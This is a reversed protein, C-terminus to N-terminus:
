YKLSSGGIFEKLISTPPIEDPCNLPLFRSTFNLLRKAESYFPSDPQISKLQPEVFTKLVSMEYVLSSNFLVDADDLFVYINEREGRRVKPWMEMTKEIPYNRFFNDRVIRRIKRFDSNSVVNNNDYNLHTVPSVYIKFKKEHPISYTLKDNLGHIGEILILQDRHVKTKKGSPYKKGDAFNYKPLEVAKGDILSCLHSNFLELDLAEINEFNYGGSEDRPTFERDLFYNDLSIEILKLGNTKLHLGLRKTFTTKGSSSPGAVLIVRLRNFNHTIMDSIKSIRKEHMIEAIKVLESDKKDEIIDNITGVDQIGLTKAWREHEKFTDSLKVQHRAEPYKDPSFHKPSRLIFGPSMLEMDFIDVYSTDPPLFGYFYNVSKGLYYLHTYEKEMKHLHKFMRIKDFMKRAKFISIAEAVPMEKRVFPIKAEIIRKMETKIQNLEKESVVQTGSPFACYLGNTTSYRIIIDNKPFVKKCAKTLVFNLGRRYMRMADENSYDLFSISCDENMRYNIEVLRKNMHAAMIRYPMKVGSLKILKKIRSYKPVTYTKGTAEITVNIKEDKSEKSINRENNEDTM